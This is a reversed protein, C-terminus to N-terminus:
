IAIIMIRVYMKINKSDTKQVLHTFCNICYFEGDHKSTIRRVLASLSKVDLYRWKKGDTIMLFIIQNEPSLNHKSKCAHRIKETNYPVHFINLAKTKNNKKFENWDNKNM